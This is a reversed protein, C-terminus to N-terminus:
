DIELNISRLQKRLDVSLSIPTPQLMAPNTTFSNCGAGVNKNCGDGIMIKANLTWAILSM